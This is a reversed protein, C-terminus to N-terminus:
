QRTWNQSRCLIGLVCGSLRLSNGSLTGSGSYSKDNNPDVITGSYRGNGSSSFNGIRKGAHQGTRLTICFAKGCPAVAAISGAETRWNGAIPDAAQALPVVTMVLSLGAVLRLM